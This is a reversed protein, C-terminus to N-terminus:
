IRAVEHHDALSPGAFFLQSALIAMRRQPPRRDLVLSHPKVRKTALLVRSIQPVPFFLISISGCLNILHTRTHRLARLVIGSDPAGSLVSAHPPPPVGHQDRTWSGVLHSISRRCSRVM